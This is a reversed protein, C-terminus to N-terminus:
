YFRNSFIDKYCTTNLKRRSCPIYYTSCRFAHREQSYHKTRPVDSIIVNKVNSRALMPRHQRDGRGGLGSEKRGEGLGGSLLTEVGDVENKHAHERISKGLLLGLASREVITATPWM